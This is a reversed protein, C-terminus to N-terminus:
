SSKYLVARLRICASFAYGTLPACQTVPYPRLTPPPIGPPNGPRYRGAIAYKQGGFISHWRGCGFICARAWGSPDANGCPHSNIYQM